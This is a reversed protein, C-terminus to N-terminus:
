PGRYIAIKDGQPCPIHQAPGIVERQGMVLVTMSHSHIGPLFLSKEPDSGGARSEVNGEPHSRQRQIM